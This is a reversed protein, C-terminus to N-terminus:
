PTICWTSVSAAFSNKYKMLFTLLCITPILLQALTGGLSMMWHGFFRFFLHGAEHFPLNILHLLSNGAYNTTMSTFIFKWGWIFIVLAVIVRGGFYFPNVVPEVFYLYNNFFTKREAVTETKEPLVAKKKLSPSPHEYYKEFIIGCKPCETNQDLQEFNCNPCKM